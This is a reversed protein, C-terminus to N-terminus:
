KEVFKTKPYLVTLSKFKKEFRDVQFSIEQSTLAQRTKIAGEEEKMAYVLAYITTIDRENQSNAHVLTAIQRANLNQTILLRKQAEEVNGVRQEVRSVVDLVEDSKDNIYTICFGVLALAVYIYEKARDFASSAERREVTSGSM